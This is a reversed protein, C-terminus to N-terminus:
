LSREVEPPVYRVPSSIVVFKRGEESSAYVDRLRRRVESSDRLPEHMDKLHFIAGGPHEVIFDLARRADRTDAEAAAGDRRLGETQSWTWVPTEGRAVEALVREVRQEEASQIYVLPRGSNMADRVAKAARSEPVNHMPVRRM